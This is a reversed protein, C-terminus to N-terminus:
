ISIWKAPVIYAATVGQVVFPEGFAERFKPVALLSASIIQGIGYGFCAFQAYIIWCIAIRNNRLLQLLTQSKTWEVSRAAREARTTTDELWEAGLGSKCSVTVPNTTTDPHDPQSTM